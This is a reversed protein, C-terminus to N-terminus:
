GRLPLRQAILFPAGAEAQTFLCLSEVRREVRLAEAFHAEAAPRFRAKGAEDLRRTLTMHFRWTGFASPYGWRRLMADRAPTLGGGRRRRLEAEDPPVRHADVWAICADALAQLAPCPEAERLALFGSLEAVALRPLEFPAVAAALAEADAVFADWGSRLRMPPKLTAHFGYLRAEATAEDIGAVEPQRRAVAREPDRGVWACGAAWLPDALEPAWYLAVRM